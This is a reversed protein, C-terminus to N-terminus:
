LMNLYPYLFSYVQAVQHNFADKFLGFIFTFFNRIQLSPIIQGTSWHTTM